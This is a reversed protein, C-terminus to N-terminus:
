THESVGVYTVSSGREPRSCEVARALTPDRRLRAISRGRTPGISGLPIGLAASVDEYSFAPEALLTQMLVREHDPLVAVAAHLAARRESQEVAEDLATADAHDSVPGAVLVERQSGALARLCERRAVSALWARLAVPERVREIHQFLRLWTRQAIDDQDPESLRHRWAVARITAGYRRVLLSWADQDGSAAARVLTTVDRGRSHRPRSSCNHEREDSRIEIDGGTLRARASTNVTTTM